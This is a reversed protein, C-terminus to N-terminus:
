NSQNDINIAHSFRYWTYFQFKFYSISQNYVHFSLHIQVLSIFVVKKKKEKKSLPDLNEKRAIEGRQM